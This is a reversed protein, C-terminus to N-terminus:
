IQEFSMSFFFCLLCKKSSKEHLHSCYETVRQGVSIYRQSERKTRWAFSSFPQLQRPLKWVVWNQDLFWRVTVLGPGSTGLNEHLGYRLVMIYAMRNNKVWLVVTSMGGSAGDPGTYGLYFHHWRGAGFHMEHSGHSLEVCCWRGVSGLVEFCQIGMWCITLAPFYPWGLRQLGWGAGFWYSHLDMGLAETWSHSKTISISASLMPTPQHRQHQWVNGDNASFNGCLVVTRSAEKWWSAVEDTDLAYTSAGCLWANGSRPPVAAQPSM